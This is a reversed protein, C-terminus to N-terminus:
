ILRTAIAICQKEIPKSVDAPSQLYAVLNAVPHFKQEVLPFVAVEGKANRSVLVAIEKALEIKKELFGPKQPILALQNHTDIKIVGRGDYGGENQKWYAPLFAIADQQNQSPYAMFNATPFGNEALFTKQNWKNKIIELVRPQPYVKKGAAELAYLAELNVDEIEISILDKDSGFAMVEEFDRFSGEEVKAYPKAAAEPDPDLYTPNLHWDSCAQQMMLGLQGGGLIGIKLSKM